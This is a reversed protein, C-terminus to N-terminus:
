KAVGPSAYRVLMTKISARGQILAQADAQCVRVDVDVRALNDVAGCLDCPEKPKIKKLRPRAARPADPM